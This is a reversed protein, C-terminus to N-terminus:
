AAPALAYLLTNRLSDPLQAFAEQRGGMVFIWESWVWRRVAALADSFTVNRKGVWAVQAGATHCAPLYAYLLAVVSFLGFLCPAARLGPAQSWGCTTELGLYARLEQFTTELSWRGTYLEILHKPSLTPATTFFYEDRHTGTCDHVFVWRVPVLGHGTKYWHAQRSVIEVHRTTGGYWRVWVRQLTTRAVVQQPSPQKSGKTRPRGAKPRTSRAPPPAYLNATAYFRSVLTLRRRYRHAFRAVEHTGYGGAGTLVFQRPPFWHLLV